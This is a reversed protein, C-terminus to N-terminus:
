EQSSKWAVIPVQILVPTTLVHVLAWISHQYKCLSSKLQQIMIGPRSAKNQHLVKRACTAVMRLRWEGKRPRGPLHAAEGVFRPDRVCRCCLWGALWKYEGSRPGCPRQDAPMPNKCTEQNGLWLRMPTQRKEETSVIPKKKGGRLKECLFFSLHARSYGSCCRFQWGRPSSISEWSENRFYTQPPSKHICTDIYIHTYMWFSLTSYFTSTKSSVKFICINIYIM